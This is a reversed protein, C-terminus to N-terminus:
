RTHTHTHTHTRNHGHVKCTHATVIRWSHVDQGQGTQELESALRSVQEDM